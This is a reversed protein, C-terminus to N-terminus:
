AAVREPLAYRGTGTRVFHSQLVKRAQEKWWTTRTPRRPALEEYVAGLEAEGGLAELAQRVAEVWVSGPGRKLIEAYREPMSEIDYAERFLAGGVLMRRRDKTFMAFVLPFKLGPFLTRPIFTPAISWSEMLRCVRSPTQFVHAPMIFGARGGEPLLRHAREMFGDFVEALFPPNGILATPRLTIEVTRFDGVIVERGTRRRAQEALVPDIEVGFAPIEKPVGALFHGPGTSPELVLDQSGLDGFFEEILRDAAWVPTWWQDLDRQRVIAQDVGSKSCQGQDANIFLDM